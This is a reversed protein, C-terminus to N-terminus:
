GPRRGAGQAEGIIGLSRPVGGSITWLVRNRGLDHM